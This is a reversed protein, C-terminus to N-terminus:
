RGALLKEYIKEQLETTKKIEFSETFKYGNQSIKKRLGSDNLLKIINYAISAPDGPASLLGNVGDKILEACGDIRNASVPVGIRMATPIVTPMGEWLSTLVLIDSWAIISAIDRRWGLLFMDDKLGLTRIEEEIQGRLIGDGALIFSIDKQKEKVIYAAKIFDLPAKQPKFCAVMTVIKKGRATLEDLPKPAKGRGKKRIRDYETFDIGPHLLSYRNDKLLRLSIGLEIHKKTEFFFHNTIPATIKELTLFLYKKIKNQYDNFSWGHVSHVRVPVRAFFAAWRGILGAKSSHTHVVSPKWKRLIRIMAFLAILDKFPRIPHVFQPSLHIKCNKLASAEPVLEGESGSILGRRFRKEDLTRLTDLTVRQAGGLELKTIIHVVLPPQPKLHNKEAM